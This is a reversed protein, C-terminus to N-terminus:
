LHQNIISAIYEMNKINYRQDAPICLIHDSIYQNCHNNEDFDLPWYIPCFIANKILIKRIKNRTEKTKFLIPYTFYTKKFKDLTKINLKGSLFEINRLRIYKNNSDYYYEYFFNNLYDFGSYNIKDINKECFILIPRWIWKILSYNKLFMGILKLLVLFIYILDISTIQKINLYKYKDIVIAGYPTSLSKRYSCISIDGYLNESYVNHTFDEIIIINNKRCLKSIYEINKDIYGFYNIIFICKYKNNKIKNQLYDIDIDFDNDIKYYEYNSFCNFISNCLYNPILCKENQKKIKNLIEKIAIRGSFYFLKNKNFKINLNYDSGIEM